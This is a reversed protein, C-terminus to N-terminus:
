NGYYQQTIPNNDYEFDLHGIDNPNNYVTVGKEFIGRITMRYPEPCTASSLYCQTMKWFTARTMTQLSQPPFLWRDVEYGYRWWFRITNWLANHAPHKYRLTAYIGGNVYQMNDGGVAGSTSPEILQADQVKAHIAAIQNEYDGQAAQQAYSNNLDTAQTRQSNGLATNQNRFQQAQQNGMNNFVVDVGTNLASSIAGGVNGGLLNGGVGMAGGVLARENNLTNAQNGQQNALDTSQNAFDNQLASNASAQERGLAAKQQSWDASQYQWRISSRNSTMYAITQNNVINTQPFNDLVLAANLFEGDHTQDLANYKRVYMALRPSPQNLYAIGSLNIDASMINEPKLELSQGNFCTVEIVTYPYVTLKKLLKWRDPMTSLIDDRFNPVDVIDLLPSGGLHEFVYGTVDHAIINPPIGNSTIWSVNTPVKIKPVLTINIIGESALPYNSIYGMFTPLQAVDFIIYTSTGTPFGDFQGGPATKLNATNDATPWQANLDVTSTIVVSSKGSNSGLILNSYEKDNLYANGNDMGEPIGLMDHYNWFDTMENALGIHGRNIFCRGFSVDFQFSTWVDLQLYLMTVGGAAWKVDQIFYYWTRSNGDRGYSMTIYNYRCAADFSMALKIPEGFRVMTQRTLVTSQSDNDALGQFYNDRANADSFKVIDRYSSDWPVNCLTLHAGAQWSSYDYQNTYNALDMPRSDPLAASDPLDTM